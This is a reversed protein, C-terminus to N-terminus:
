VCVRCRGGGASVCVCVQVQRGQMGECVCVSCRGGGSVRVCM